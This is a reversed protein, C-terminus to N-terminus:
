REFQGPGVSRIADAPPSQCIQLEAVPALALPQGIAVRDGVAARAVAWKISAEIAFALAGLVLALVPTACRTRSLLASVLWCICVM